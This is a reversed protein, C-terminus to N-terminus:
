GVNKVVVRYDGFGTLKCFTLAEEGPGKVSRWVVDKISYEGGSEPMWGFGSCQSQALNGASFSNSSWSLWAGPSIRNPALPVVGISRSGFFFSDTRYGADAKSITSIATSGTSISPQSIVPFSPQM